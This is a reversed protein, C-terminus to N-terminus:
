NFFQDQLLDLNAKTIMATNKTTKFHVIYSKKAYLSFSKVHHVNIIFGRHARFFYTGALEEALENLTQYSSYEGATTYITTSRGTREIYIINKKEILFVESKTKLVLKAKDKVKSTKQFKSIGKLLRDKSFPKMIYDLVDLDFAHVAFGSHGTVFIVKIDMAYSHIFDALEYGSLAPMEIDTILLDIEKSKILQYAEESNNTSFVVDISPEAALLVELKELDYKQDDVLGVKIM